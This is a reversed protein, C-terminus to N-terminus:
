YVLRRRWWKCVSQRSNTGTYSCADGDADTNTDADVDTDADTATDKYRATHTETPTGIQMMQLSTTQKKTGAWTYADDNYIDYRLVWM